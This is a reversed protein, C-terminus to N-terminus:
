ATRMLYIVRSSEPVPITQEITFYTSFEREFDSQTYEPFIDKRSALLKQVQSDGKPVFEIILHKSCAAFFQALRSLPVNNSIALHHILALALTLDAPGRDLLSHRESHAWGLAPSPNTLDIILPLMSESREKRCVRYNKEVASPDVDCAVTYSGHAVARRSFLGNNAGLDWTLKPKVQQVLTDVITEKESLARASYNTAEYYDAWETGGPRWDLKVIASRLSDIIGLLANKGLNRTQRLKGTGAADAYKRQSRAHLHIHILQSFKFWSSKPLISSALSLPIGNIFSAGLSRLNVDCEAILALPALFHQCFQQYAVWAAGEVHREFSLTDIFVPRAGKFQVNYASADKLSMGRRLAELQIDLTLLAADKLQSFTWEYPYSIFPIKEPKIIKYCESTINQRDAVEEHPILLGKSSLAEYLGSSMLQDYDAQYCQNVQRYLVGDAHFLFGSPDRFSGTVVQANSM